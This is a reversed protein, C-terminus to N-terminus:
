NYLSDCVVLYSTIPSSYTQITKNQTEITTVHGPILDQNRITYILDYKKIIKKTLESDQDFDASICYTTSYEKPVNLINWNKEIINQLPKSTDIENNIFKVIQPFKNNM